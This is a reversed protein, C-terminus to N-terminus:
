TLESPDIFKDILLIHHKNIAVIYNTKAQRLSIIKTNDDIYTVSAIKLSATQSNASLGIRGYKQILKLIYYMTIIVALLATLVKFIVTIDM